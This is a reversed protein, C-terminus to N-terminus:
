TRWKIERMFLLGFSGPGCNTSIAPSAKQYIINEFTKRSKVQEEIEKLEENTLGAYTIFLTKADITDPTHLAEKIYRKWVYKRTGIRIAGVKMSSKKLVIIPHLMLAKCIKNIRSPIRGVRALYETSDVIFSTSVYGKMEELECVIRDVAMGGSAYIAARLVM